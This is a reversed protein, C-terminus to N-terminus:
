IYPKMVDEMWQSVTQDLGSDNVPLLPITFVTIRFLLTKLMVMQLNQRQILSPGCNHPVKHPGGM